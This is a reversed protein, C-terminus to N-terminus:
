NNLKLYTKSDMEQVEVSVDVGYVPLEDIAKLMLFSLDKKQMLSRGDLIKLTVHIFNERDEGRQFYAYEKTRIKIDNVEFLESSQMAKLAADMMEEPSVIDTLDNAHEITCHPM